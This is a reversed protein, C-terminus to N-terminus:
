VKKIINEYDQSIVAHMDDNNIHPKIELAHSTNAASLNTGNHRRVM